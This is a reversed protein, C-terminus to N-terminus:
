TTCTYMYMYYTFSTIFNTNLNISLDLANEIVIVALIHLSSYLINFSLSHTFPYFLNKVAFYKSHCCM